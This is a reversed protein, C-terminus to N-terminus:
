NNYNNIKQKKYNIKFLIFLSIVIIILATLQSYSLTTFWMKGQYIFDENYRFYEIIFRALSHFTIGIFFLSGNKLKIKQSYYILSFFILLYILSEYLQTPHRLLGDEL